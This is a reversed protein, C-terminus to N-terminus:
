RGSGPHDRLDFVLDGKSVQDNVAAHILDHHQQHLSVSPDVNSDAYTANINVPLHIM